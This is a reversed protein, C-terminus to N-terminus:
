KAKQRGAQQHARGIDVMHGRIDAERNVADRTERAERQQEATLEQTKTSRGAMAKKGRKGVKGPEEPKGTKHALDPQALNKPLADTLRFKGVGSMTNAEKV